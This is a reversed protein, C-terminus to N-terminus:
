LQLVGLSRFFALEVCFCFINIRDNMRGLWSTRAKGALIILMFRRFQKRSEESTRTLAAGIGNAECISIRLILPTLSLSISCVKFGLWTMAERWSDEIVEIV